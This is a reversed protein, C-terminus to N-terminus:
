LGGTAKDVLCERFGRKFSSGPRGAAGSTRHPGPRREKKTQLLAARGGSVQHELRSSFLVPESTSTTGCAQGWGLQALM